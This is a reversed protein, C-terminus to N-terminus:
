RIAEAAEWAETREKDRREARQNRLLNSIGKYKLYLEKKHDNKLRQIIKNFEQPRM